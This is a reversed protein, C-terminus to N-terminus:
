QLRLVSEGTGVGSAAFLELALERPHRYRNTSYAYESFYDELEEVSAGSFAGLTCLADAAESLCGLVRRNAAPGFRVESMARNEVAVANDPIGLRTLLASVEDQFAPAANRFNQAPLIVALLSRENLCLAIQHPRTVLSACWDGLVTTPPASTFKANVGAVALLKRTCRLTVM